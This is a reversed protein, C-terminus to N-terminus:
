FRKNRDVKFIFILSSSSSGSTTTTTTTCVCLQLTYFKSKQVKNTMYILSNLIIFTESALLYSHAFEMLVIRCM